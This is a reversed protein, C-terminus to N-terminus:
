ADDSTAIIEWTAETSEGQVLAEGDVATVAFCLQVPTGAEEEVGFTLAFPSSGSDAPSAALTEGTLIEEGSADADCVADPDIHIVSYSLNEINAGDSDVLSVGGAEVTGNVTTAADLRVWFPAYVTQGPVLNAAAFNLTAAEALEDHNQYPGEPGTESGELNFSAAGFVGQAFESDNWAALTVAAGIGLVLGGALIAQAKRRGQGSPQDDTPSHQPASHRTM